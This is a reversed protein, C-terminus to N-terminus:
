HSPSPQPGTRLARHLVVALRVGAKSLQERVIQAAHRQYDLTLVYDGMENPAPLEGYVSKKSIGFTERAWDEANGQAWLKRDKDSLQGILEKAISAADPGLVKVLETDWVQHLKHPSIGAGSVRKGNGGKDHADSAHLPQHVDAVLHLLFQLALLQEPATTASDALEASFQQIKNVVCDEAPGDSALTGQALKPMGFCAAALNPDQDVELDVFHWQQTKDYHNPHPGNRDRDRYKDAWTTESAIDRDPTLHTEDQALITKIKELVAPELWHEAIIGVVKHGEDGWAYLLNTVPAAEISLACLLVVGLRRSLTVLAAIGDSM